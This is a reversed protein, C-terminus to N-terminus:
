NEEEIITEESEEVEIFDEVMRQRQLERKEEETYDIPIRM